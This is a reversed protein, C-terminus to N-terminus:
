SLWLILTTVLLGTLVLHVTWAGWIWFARQSAAEGSRLREFVAGATAGLTFLSLAALGVWLLPGGGSGAPTTLVVRMTGLSLCLGVTAFM